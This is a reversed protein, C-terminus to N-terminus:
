ILSIAYFTQLLFSGIILSHFQNIKFDKLLNNKKKM